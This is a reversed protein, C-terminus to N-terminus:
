RQVNRTMIIKCGTAHDLADYLDVIDALQSIANKLRLVLVAEQVVEELALAKDGRENIFDVQGPSLRGNHSGHGPYPMNTSPRHHIAGNQPRSPGAVAPWSPGLAGNAYSQPYNSGHHPRRARLNRDM